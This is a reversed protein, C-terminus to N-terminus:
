VLFIIIFMVERIAAQTLSSGKDNGGGDQKSENESDSGQAMGLFTSIQSNLSKSQGLEVVYV